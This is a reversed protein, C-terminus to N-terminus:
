RVKVFYLGVDSVVDLSVRGGRTLVQLSWARDSTNEDCRTTGPGRAWDLCLGKLTVFTVAGDGTGASTLIWAGEHFAVVGSKTSRHVYREPTLLELTDTAGEKTGQYLGVLESASMPQVRKHEKTCTPLVCILVLLVKKM